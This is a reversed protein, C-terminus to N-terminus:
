CNKKLQILRAQELIDNQQYSKTPIFMMPTRGTIGLKRQKLKRNSIRVEALTTIKEDLVVEFNEKDKLTYILFSKENFGIGSFTLSDNALSDPISINFEGDVKSITGTKGGKIGINAYSLATGKKNKIQGTIVIQSFSLSFFVFNIIVAFSIRNMESIFSNLKLL